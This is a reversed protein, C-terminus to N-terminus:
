ATSLALKIFTMNVRLSTMRGKNTVDYSIFRLQNELCKYPLLIKAQQIPVVCRGPIYNKDPFFVLITGKLLM